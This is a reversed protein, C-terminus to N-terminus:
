IMTDRSVYSYQAWYRCVKTLLFAIQKRYTLFGKTPMKADANQLTGNEEIFVTEKENKKM